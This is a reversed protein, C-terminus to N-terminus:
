SLCVAAPGMGICFAGLAVVACLIAVVRLRNALRTKDEFETYAVQALYSMGATLM